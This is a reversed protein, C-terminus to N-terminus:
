EPKKLPSKSRAWPRGKLPSNRTPGVHPNKRYMAIIDMENFKELKQRPPM